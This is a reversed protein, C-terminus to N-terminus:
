IVVQYKCSRIAGFFLPSYQQVKPQRGITFRIVCSLVIKIVFTRSHLIKLIILDWFDNVVIFSENRWVQGITLFSSVRLNQLYKIKLYGYNKKVHKSFFLYRIFLFIYPIIILLSLVYIFRKMIFITLAKDSENCLICICYHSLLVCM